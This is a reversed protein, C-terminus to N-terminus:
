AAPTVRRRLVRRAAFALGAIIAALLMPPLLIGLANFLTSFTLEASWGLLDRAQAFPSPADFGPTAKGSEYRFAMPTANLMARQGAVQTDADRIARGLDARQRELEARRPGSARAIRDDVTARETAAATRATRAADINAATNEGQVEVSRVGGESREVVAIADRGFGRALEPAIQFNLEAAVDNNPSRHYRMATIRCRSPGLRECADAHREQAAAIRQGPLRFAYAYRFAVGPAATVEVGPAVGQDAPDGGTESNSCAALSVTAALIIFTSRFRTM